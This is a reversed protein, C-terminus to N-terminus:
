DSLLFLSKFLLLWNKREKISIGRLDNNWEIRQWGLPLDGVILDYKNKVKDLTIFPDGLVYNDKNTGKEKIHLVLDSKEEFEKFLNFDSVEIYISEKLDFKNKIERVLDACIKKKNM